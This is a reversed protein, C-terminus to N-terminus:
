IHCSRQTVKFPLFSHFRVKTPDISCLVIAHPGTQSKQVAGAPASRLGAGNTKGHAVVGFHLFRLNCDCVAQTNLGCRQCHGSGYDLTSSAFPRGRLMAAPSAVEATELTFVRM